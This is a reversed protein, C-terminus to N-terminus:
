YENQNWKKVVCGTLIGCVAFCIAIYWFAQENKLLLPTARAFSTFDTVRIWDKSFRSLLAPLFAAASSTLIILIPKRLLASLACLLLTFSLCALIKVAFFICSYQCITIGPAFDGMYEISQVPATILPMDYAHYVSIIDVAYWAASVATCLACSSLYKGTVTKKRGNKAARLIQTFSGSSSRGICERSFVSTFLLVLVLYLTWDAEASFLKKWGTDYVFWAQKGDNGLNDIYNAHNEIMEFCENRSYAYNYESLYASYEDFSITDNAYLTQMEERKALTTDIRDREDMLYQRKTDTMEGALTTMYEKYIRDAYSANPQYVYTNICCKATFLLIVFIWVRSSLLTKYAEAAFLSLSYSRKKNKERVLRCKCSLGNVKAFLGNPVKVNVGDSTSNYKWVTFVLLAASLITYVTITLAIYSVEKGFFNCSRYREFITTAAAADLFDLVHLPNDSSVHVINLILGAGFLCFGSLFTLVYHYAFVSIILLISLIMFFTLLNLLLSLLAYEGVTWIYPCYLFMDFSQIANMPNSYGVTIGIILWSELLFLLVTMLTALLAALIKAIATKTRGNKSCRLLPLFGCAKEETFVATGVTIVMFFIFINVADYSFYDDWGRTYEFGIKVTNKATNYFAIVKRQYKTIYANESIGLAESEDLNAYARDIVDQVRDPYEKIYDIRDFVAHFVQIDTFGDPAYTNPLTEPAYDYNGLRMQEIFINNQESEWELLSHYANEVSDPSLSYAYFITEAVDVPIKNEHSQSVHYLCFVGNLLMLVACVVRIYQIGLIKRFENAIYKM